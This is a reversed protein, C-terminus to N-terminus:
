QVLSKHYADFCDLGASNVHMGMGVRDGLMLANDEVSNYPQWKPFRADNPDGTKAFNTWYTIMMDSFEQDSNDWPIIIGTSANYSGFNRFVYAIDLGHMAGLRHGEPGPPRRSLYYRYVPSRGTEAQM